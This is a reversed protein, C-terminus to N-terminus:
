TQDELEDFLKARGSKRVPAAAVQVRDVDEKPLLRMGAHDPKFKDSVDDLRCFAGNVRLITPPGAEGHRTKTAVFQCVSHEEDKTGLCFAYWANNAFSTCWEAENHHPRRAPPASTFRGAMQHSVWVTTQFPIALESKCRRILGALELARQSGEVGKANTALLWNDVLEGAWDIFVAKIPLGRKQQIATLKQRIEGIGGRGGSKPDNHDVLVLYKNMWPRAMELRESEGPRPMGSKLGAYMLQEYQQLNGETSLKGGAMIRNKLRDKLVKAACSGARIQQMRKNDEYGIFVALGPAIVSDPQEYLSQLEAISCALQMQLTTKGGGSPGLVVNCDCAESGGEMIRDVFTVGTPWRPRAVEDWNAPMTTDDEAERGIATITEIKQQQVALLKPLDHIHKGGANLVAARIADGTERDILIERLTELASNPELENEPDVTYMYRLIADATAAAEDRLAPLVLPSNTVATLVRMSLVNYNPLEQHKDYHDLIASWIIRYTSEGPKSFHEPKLHTRAAQFVRECRAIHQLTFEITFNTVEQNAYDMDAM